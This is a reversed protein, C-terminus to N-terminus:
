RNVKLFSTQFVEEGDQFVTVTVRQINGDGGAFGATSNTISYGAPV